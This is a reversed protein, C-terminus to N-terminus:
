RTLELARKGRATIVARGTYGGANRTAHIWGAALLERVVPEPVDASGIGRAKLQWAGTSSDIIAGLALTELVARATGEIKM